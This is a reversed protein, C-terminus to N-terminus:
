SPQGNGPMVILREPPLRWCGAGEDWTLLRGPIAIVGSADADWLCCLVVAMVEGGRSKRSIPGIVALRGLRPHEVPDGIMPPLVAGPKRVPDDLEDPRGM